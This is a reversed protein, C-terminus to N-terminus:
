SGIWLPIIWWGVLFFFVATLIFTAEFIDALGRPISGM